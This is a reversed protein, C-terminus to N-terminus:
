TLTVSSQITSVIDYASVTFSEVFSGKTYGSPATAATMTADQQFLTAIIAENAFTTTITQSISTNSGPASAASAAVDVANCGGVDYYTLTGYAVTSSGWSCTVINSANGIVGTATFIAMARTSPNGNFGYIPLSATYTNGATDTVVPTGPTASGCCWHLIVAICNGGAQNYGSGSNLSTVSGGFVGGTGAQTVTIAM